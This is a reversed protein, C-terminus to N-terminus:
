RFICRTLRYLLVPLRVPSRPSVRYMTAKPGVATSGPPARGDSRGAIWAAAASSMANGPSLSLIIPRDVSNVSNLALVEEISYEEDFDYLCDWKIQTFCLILSALASFFTSLM